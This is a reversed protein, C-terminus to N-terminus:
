ALKKLLQKEDFGMITSVIEGSVKKITFPTGLGGLKKFENYYKEDEHIDREEFKINHENLFEKQKACYGCNKTSFVIIEM